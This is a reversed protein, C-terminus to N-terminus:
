GRQQQLMRGAQTLDLQVQRIEQQQKKELLHLSNSTEEIFPLLKELDTSKALETRLKALRNDLDLDIGKCLLSLRLVFQALLKFQ